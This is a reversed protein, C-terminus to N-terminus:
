VNVVEGYSILKKELAEFCSMSGSENMVNFLPIDGQGAELIKDDVMASNHPILKLMGFDRTTGWDVSRNAIHFADVEAGLHYRCYANLEAFYDPVLDRYHVCAVTLDPRVASCAEYALLGFRNTLIENLKLVGGPLGLLILDPKEDMEISKIFHSFMYVKEHEGYARSFLFEPLRHFGFCESYHRSGVQSVRYGKADFFERLALQVEFKHAQEGFGLIVALPTEIKDLFDTGPFGSEGGKMSGFRPWYTFGLSRRRCGAETESYLSDPLPYACLIEKGAEIAYRLAPAIDRDPELLVAPQIVFLCDANLLADEISHTVQIGTDSGRDAYGADKGAPFMGPLSVCGTVDFPLIKRHRILPASEIDYPFIVTRKKKV